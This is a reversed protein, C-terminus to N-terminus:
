SKTTMFVNQHRQQKPRQPHGLVNQRRRMSQRWPRTEVSNRRSTSLLRQDQKTSPMRSSTFPMPNISHDTPLAQAPHESKALLVTTSNQQTHCLTPEGITLAIPDSPKVSILPGPLAVGPDEDIVASLHRGATPHWRARSPAESLRSPASRVQRPHHRRPTTLLPPGDGELDM